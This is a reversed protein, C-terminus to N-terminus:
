SSYSRSYFIWEIYLSICYLVTFEKVNQWTRKAVCFRSLVPKLRHFFVLFSVLIQLLFVCSFVTTVVTLNSTVNMGGMLTQRKVSFSKETWLWKCCLMVWLFFDKFYLTIEFALLHYYCFFCTSVLDLYWFVTVSLNVRSSNHALPQLLWSFNMSNDLM